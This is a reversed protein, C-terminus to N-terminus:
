EHKKMHIMFSTVEGRVNVPNGLNDILYMRISDFRRGRPCLNIYVRENPEIKMLSGPPADPSFSYLVTGHSSNDYMSLSNELFSTCIMIKTRGDTIDAINDGYTSVTFPESGIQTLSFGFLRYMLSGNFRVQFNSGSVINIQVKGTNYNPVISFQAVGGVDHGNAIQTAKVISDIDIINYNGDPITVTFWNVGSDPSYQITSNQQETSINTWSYWINSNVLSIDWDGTLDMENDFKVTFDHSVGQTLNNSDINLLVSNM